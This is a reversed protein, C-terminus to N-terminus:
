KTQDSSFSASPLGWQERFTGSPLISGPPHWDWEGPALHYSALQLLPLKPQMHPLIEECSSNMMCQFPRRLFTSDRNRSTNLLYPSMVSGEVLVWFSHTALHSNAEKGLYCSYSLLFHVWTAIPFSNELLSALHQNLWWGLLHKLFM